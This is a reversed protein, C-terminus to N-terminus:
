SGTLMSGRVSTGFTMRSSSASRARSSRLPDRCHRLDLIERQVETRLVRGRVAHQAEHELQVAFDNLLGIRVDPQQVARM